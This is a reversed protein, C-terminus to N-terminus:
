SRRSRSSGSQRSRPRERPEDDVAEYERNNESDRSHRERPEDDEVSGDYSGTSEIEELEKDIDLGIEEAKSYVFDVYKSYEEEKFPPQCTKIDPMIKSLKDEAEDNLLGDSVLNAKDTVIKCEYKRQFGNVGDHSAKFIIGDDFDCLHYLDDSYRDIEEMVVKSVSHPMKFMQPGKAISDEDKTALVIIVNRNNQPIMYRKPFEGINKALTEDKEFKKHLAWGDQTLQCPEGIAAPSTAQIIKKNDKSFVIFESMQMDMDEPNETISPLVMFEVGDKTIELGNNFRESRRTRKGM